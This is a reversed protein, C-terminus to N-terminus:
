QFLSSLSPLTAIVISMCVHTCLAIMSILLSSLVEVFEVAGLLVGDGAVVVGDVRWVGFLARGWDLVDHGLGQDLTM